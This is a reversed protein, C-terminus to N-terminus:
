PSVKLSAIPIASNELEVEFVGSIDAPFALKVTSGASVEKSEDYGHVHIEEDVDSQVEFRIMDGEDFELELEGGQPEGNKVVVKPVPPPSPKEANSREPSDNGTAGTALAPTSGATEDADKSDDPRVVFFLALVALVLFGGIFFRKPELNV